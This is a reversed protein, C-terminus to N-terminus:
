PGANDLLADLNAHEPPVEAQAILAVEQETLEEIRLVRRDRRKLRACEEASIVVLSDHGGETVTVPESQARSALAKWDQILEASTVRM